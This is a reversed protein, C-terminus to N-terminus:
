EYIGLIANDIVFRDKGWFRFQPTFENSIGLRYLVVRNRRNGQSALNIPLYNGFSEGGDRSISMDIRSIDDNEGQEIIFSLYDAIFKDGNPLRTTNPIRIRPIEAGNYTTIDSSLRYLNGDKFSVFYYSNNFFTLRKAIHYNQYEDTLTFFKKTNFDYVYTLNDTKFTVQYLVHGDQKFLLGYADEPTTLEALKFNIGDNSLQQVEGGTSYMIALGAKENKGVWVVFNSGTAITAPNVCGYDINFSGTRQYPFLTYGLNNWSETVASGIVFLQNGKGPVRICALPNDPKTQFSGVNNSGAPWNLGNNLASLRWQARDVDPAIFYGDQFAIYGPTFDTTAKTFTNAGYDYIYINKKDCIGIQEADNEDIFVDGSSTELIGIRTASLGTSVEWVNKSTVVIMKNSRTSTFVDRGEAVEDLEIAIEYGAYPVMWNDSILMNFTEERSIKPYRGFVNSGVMRLPMEKAIVSKVTM